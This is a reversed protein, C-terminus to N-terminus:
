CELIDMRLEKVNSSEAAATPILAYQSIGVFGRHAAVGSAGRARGICLQVERFSKV